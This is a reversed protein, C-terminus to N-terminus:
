GSEPTDENTKKEAKVSKWELGFAGIFAFCSLGLALYWISRMSDNYAKLAEDLKDLPVLNELGTAGSSTLTAASLTPAIKTLKKILQSELLTQSVTVFITGGVFVFFNLIATGISIDKDSLVVQIAINPQQLCLGL